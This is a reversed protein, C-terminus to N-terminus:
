QAVRSPAVSEELRVEVFGGDIAVWYTFDKRILKYGLYCFLEVLYIILFINDGLNLLMCTALSRAILLQGSNLILLSLVATRKLSENPIYGYWEPNNRRKRPSTDLDYSMAASTFGSSLALICLSIISASRNDSEDATAVLIAYIQSSRLSSSSYPATLSALQM